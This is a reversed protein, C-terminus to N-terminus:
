LLMVILDFLNGKLLVDNTNRESVFNKHVVELDSVHEVIIARRDLCDLEFFDPNVCLLENTIALEESLNDCHRMGQKSVGVLVKNFVDAVWLLACILFHRM